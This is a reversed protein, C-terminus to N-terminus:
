REINRGLAKTLLLALKESYAILDSDGYGFGTNGIWNGGQKLAASPFDYQYQPTAGAIDSNIM